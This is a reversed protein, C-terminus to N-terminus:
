RYKHIHQQYDQANQMWGCYNRYASTFGGLAYTIETDQYRLQLKTGAIMQAVLDWFAPDKDSIFFRNRQQHLPLTIDPLKDVAGSIRSPKDSQLLQEDLYIRFGHPEFCTLRLVTYGVSGSTTENALYGFSQGAISKEKLYGKWDSAALAQDGLIVVLTLLLIRPM